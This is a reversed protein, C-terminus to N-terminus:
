ASRRLEVRDFALIALYNNQKLALIPLKLLKITQRFIDSM